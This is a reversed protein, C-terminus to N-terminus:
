NSKGKLQRSPSDTIRQIRQRLTAARAVDGQSEKLQALHVLAEYYHADLYVAKELAQIAGQLHGQAQHIEGLFLYGQPVMPNQQCYHQCQIQAQELQGLNALSRISDLTHKAQLNPNPSSSQKSQLPATPSPKTNIGSQQNFPGSPQASPPSQPPSLAPSKSSPTLSPPSLPKSPNSTKSPFQSTSPANSPANSPASFKAPSVPTLQFNTSKPNPLPPSPANGPSHSSTKIKQYAFVSPQKIPTFQKHKIQSSEAHGVFLLGQDHLLRDLLRITRERAVPDFYILLNRCFIIRYPSRQSLFLPDLINGQQFKVRNVIYSDLKYGEPTQQFYRSYDSPDCQRFSYRGYVARQALKLSQSNIDIADVQFNQARLGLELLTIVISYPEEGTSCPLSLIRLTRSSDPPLWHRSVHSRFFAFATRNRFFCTEPISLAETLTQLESLSTRLHDFYHVLTPCHSARIRQNIARHVFDTGISEVKLGIKAKLYAEIKVFIQQDLPLNEM